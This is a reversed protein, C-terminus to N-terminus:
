INNIIAFCIDSYALYILQALYILESYEFM